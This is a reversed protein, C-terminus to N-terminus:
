VSVVMANSGFGGRVVRRILLRCIAMNLISVGLTSTAEMNTCVRPHPLAPPHPLFLLLTLMGGAHRGMALLLLGVLRVYRGSPPRPTLEPPALVEASQYSGPDLEEGRRIKEECM